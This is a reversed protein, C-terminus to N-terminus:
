HGYPGSGSIFYYVHSWLLRWRIYGIPHKAACGSGAPEWGGVRILRRCVLSFGSRKWSSFSERLVDRSWVFGARGGGGGAVWGGWLWGRHMVEEEGEEEEREGEGGGGGGECDVVEGEGGGGRGGEGEGM